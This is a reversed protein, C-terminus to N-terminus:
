ALQDTEINSLMLTSVVNSINKIIMDQSSLQKIATSNNRRFSKCTIKIQEVTGNVYAFLEFPTDKKCERFHHIAAISPDLYERSFGDLPYLKHSSGNGADVRSPMFMNKVRNDVPQTADQYRKILLPHTEHRPNESTFHLNVYFSLVAVKSRRFIETLHTKLANIDVAETVLIEDLDIDIAFEYYKHRERCDYLAIQEANWLPQSERRRESKTSITEAKKLRTLTDKLPFEFDIVEMLGKKAYYKLVNRAQLNLGREPHMIFHDVGLFRHVEFWEIILKPNVTGYMLRNCVAIKDRLLCSNRITPKIYHKNNESCPISQTTLSAGIISDSDESLICELRMAILQSPPSQDFKIVKMQITRKNLTSICCCFTQNVSTENQWAIITLKRSKLLHSDKENDACSENDVFASYLFTGQEPVKVFFKSRQSKEKKLRATEEKQFFRLQLAMALILYLGALVKVCKCFLRM